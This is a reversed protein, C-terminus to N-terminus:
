VMVSTMRILMLRMVVIKIAIMLRAVMVTTALM